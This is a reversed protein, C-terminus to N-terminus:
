NTQEKFDVEVTLADIQAQVAKLKVQAIRLQESHYNINWQCEKEHEKLIEVETKEIKAEM